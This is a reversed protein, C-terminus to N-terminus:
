EPQQRARFLLLPRNPGIGMADEANLQNARRPLGAVESDLGTEGSDNEVACFRLQLRELCNPRPILVKGM